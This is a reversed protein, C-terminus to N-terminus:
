NLYCSSSYCIFGVFRLPKACHMNLKDIFCLGSKLKPLYPTPTMSFYVAPHEAQKM